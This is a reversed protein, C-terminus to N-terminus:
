HMSKKIREYGDKVSQFLIESATSVEVATKEAARKLPNIQSSLESWKKELVEWENQVEAKFLATQVALEGRLQELSHIDSLNINRTEM